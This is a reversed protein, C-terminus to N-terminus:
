YHSQKASSSVEKSLNVKGGAIADLDVSRKEGTMKRKTGRGSTDTMAFSGGGLGRVLDALTGLTLRGGEEQVKALVKLIRWANFTVDKTILSAPDRTCNDCIGCTTLTGSTKSSLNDPRDWAAASLHSSASFYQM